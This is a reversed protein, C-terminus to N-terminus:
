LNLSKKFNIIINLLFKGPSDQPLKSKKIILSREYYEKAKHMDGMDFYVNGLNEVNGAIDIHGLKLFIKFIKFFEFFNM